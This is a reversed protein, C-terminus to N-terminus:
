RVREEVDGPRTALKDFETSLETPAITVGVRKKPGQLWTKLLDDVGFAPDYTGLPDRAAIARFEMSGLRASFDVQLRAEFAKQREEIVALDPAKKLLDIKTTVIQIRCSKDLAGRDLFMQLSQRVSYFAGARTALEALRAGDLLIVVFDASPLEILQDVLVSNGRANKYLEGARDSIIFDHRPGVNKTSTVPFHFYQLGEAISTHQTDPTSRGSDTRELHARRELGTITRIGCSDFGAFSGHLFRDYISCILTSKGSDRDGLLVIITAPQSCMFATVDETTLSESSPIAIDRAIPASAPTQTPRASTQNDLGVQEVAAMDETAM